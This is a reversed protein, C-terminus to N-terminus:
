GSFWGAAGLVALTLALLGAVAQSAGKIRTSGLLHGIVACSLATGGLMSMVTIALADILTINM